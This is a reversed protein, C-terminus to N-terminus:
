LNRLVENLLIKFFIKRAFKGRNVSEGLSGGGGKVALHSSLKKDISRLCIKLTENLGSLSVLAPFPSPM